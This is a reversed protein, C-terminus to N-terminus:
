KAVDATDTLPLLAQDITRRVEVIGSTEEPLEAIFSHKGSGLGADRLDKRYRNALARLVRKGDVIIDLCVPEEPQTECQAWGTVTLPGARDVFGRLPGELIEAPPLGAREGLRQQIAQLVFGDELRPLCEVAPFPRPTPYLAHFESANEFDNRFVEDFFSEAPCGDAILVEHEDLELDFYHVTRNLKAQTITVGNL